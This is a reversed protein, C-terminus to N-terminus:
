SRPVDQDELLRGVDLRLPATAGEPHWVLEEAAVEPREDDPRWRDITRADPDVIWYEPTGARQHLRRKTVRDARASSPSVVEVALVLRDVVVGDRPPRGDRLPVVLLDPQVVTDPTLRVDLPAFLALGVPQRDLYDALLRHLRALVVQHDLSPAPTVLLEGDVCEYRPWARDPDNLADVEDVTWRRSADAPSPMPMAMTQEAFAFTPLPARRVSRRAGLGHTVAADRGGDM